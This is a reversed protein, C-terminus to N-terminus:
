RWMPALPAVLLILAVALFVYLVIKVPPPPGGAFYTIVFVVAITLIQSIM